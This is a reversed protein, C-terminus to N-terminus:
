NDVIQQIVSELDKEAPKLQKVYQSSLCIIVQKKLQRSGTLYELIIKRGQKLGISLHVISGRFLSPAFNHDCGNRWQYLEYIEEPLKLPLHSIKQEIEQRSLGPLLNDVETIGKDRLSNILINLKDTISAM